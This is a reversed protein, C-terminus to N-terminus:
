CSQSATRRPRRTRTPWWPSRARAGGTEGGEEAGEEAVVTGLVELAGEGMDRSSLSGSRRGVQSIWHVHYSLCGGDLSVKRIPM